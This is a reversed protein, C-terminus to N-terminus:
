YVGVVNAVVVSVPMKLPLRALAESEVGDDKCSRSVPGAVGGVAVMTSLGMEGTNGTNPWVTVTLAATEPGDSVGAPVTAKVTSPEAVVALRVAPTAVVVSVPRLTPVCM